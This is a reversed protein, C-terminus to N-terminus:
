RLQKMMDAMGLQACIAASKMASSMELAGSRESRMLELAGCLEEMLYCLELCFSDSTGQAAQKLRENADAAGTSMVAILTQATDAALEGGDLRYSLENLEEPITQILSLAGEMAELQGEVATVRLRLADAQYHIVGADMGEERSIRRCVSGADGQTDYAAGLVAYSEGNKRVCGAAGREALRAAEARAVSIDDYEGLCVAYISAAPITIERTARPQDEAMVAAARRVPAPLTTMYACYAAAVAILPLIIRRM